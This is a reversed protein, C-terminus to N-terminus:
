YLGLEAWGIVETFLSSASSSSSSSSLPIIIIFFFELLGKSIVFSINVLM